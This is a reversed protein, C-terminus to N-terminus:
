EKPAFQRIAPYLRAMKELWGPGFKTVNYQVLLPLFWMPMDQMSESPGEESWPLYVQLDDDLQYARWFPMSGASSAPNNPDRSPIQSPKFESASYQGPHTARPTWAGTVPDYDGPGAGQIVNGPGSGPSARRAAESAFYQAEALNKQVMSESVRLAAAEAARQEDTKLSSVARGIDQGMHSVADAMGDASGGVQISPTSFAAGGGGLAFLPHLGARKADGVRWRIANRAYKRQEAVSHWYAASTTPDPVDNDRLAGSLLNGGSSILSGAIIPNM